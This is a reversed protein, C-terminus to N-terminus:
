LQQKYINIYEFFLALILPGLMFGVLGFVYLGGLVGILILAPHVKANNGIFKPRLFNDIFSIVLTGYLALVLGKWWLGDDIHIFFLYLSAPVWVLWTGVLPLLAFVATLIGLFVPSPVGLIYYGLGGIVGQILAILITGYLVGRVVQRTRNFILTNNEESFPMLNRISHMIADQEKLFYYILFIMVILSIILVPLGVLFNQVTSIFASFASNLYSQVHVTTGTLNEIFGIFGDINWDESWLAGSIHQYLISAEIIIVNIIAMAPLVVVLICLVTTSLASAVPSKTKELLLKYIPNLLIAIIAAAAIAAFFPRVILLAMIGLILFIIVASYKKHGELAM